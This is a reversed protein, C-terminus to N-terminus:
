GGRPARADAQGARTAPRAHRRPTALPGHAAPVPTPALAAAPQREEFRNGPSSTGLCLDRARVLAEVMERASAYRLSPAKALAKRLVPVLPAPLGAASPGDLPAPANIQKGVTDAVSEGRFPVHGSFLEYVVIGLAYLDSRADLKKGQAQEPSMYEPTGIVVGTGTLAQATPVDAQKAIGFDMIKVVGRADRMINSTKLDRHIIGEEHIAVLGEAVSIAVEFAEPVPLPGEGSVVRHFDVGEVYAMTIWRLGREEGYEHIRCVNRHTVARALKIESRFRRALDEPDGPLTQLVKLAVVEDLTRDHAKYVTGMGGRGLCDQIEYRDALVSGRTIAAMVTGCHFCVPTGEANDAKCSHCIM